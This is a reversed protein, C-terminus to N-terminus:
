LLGGGVILYACASLLILRGPVARISRGGDRALLLAWLAGVVAWIWPATREVPLDAFVVLSQLAGVIAATGVFPAWLWDRSRLPRCGRLLWFVPAGVAWPTAFAVALCWATLM